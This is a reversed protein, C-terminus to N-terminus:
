ALALCAKEWEHLFRYPLPLHTEDLSGLVAGLAELVTGQPKATELANILAETYRMGLIEDELNKLLDQQNRDQHVHPKGFLIHYDTGALVRQAIYSGWIDDYRGVRPLVLMLPALEALYATNQSNIPTWTQKPDTVIGDATFRHYDTVQPDRTLREIANIDPDGYILGNVIGIKHPRGNPSSAAFPVASRPFGRYTYSDKALAGLNFWKGKAVRASQPQTFAAEIENFYDGKPANDDDISVIIDPKLKAAELIAINRRQVCNWGIADSLAPYLQQQRWPMLWQCNGLERDLQQLEDGKATTKQDLAIIFPVDPGLERYKRLVTPVNITTTVLVTKM